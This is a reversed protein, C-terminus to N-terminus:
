WVIRCKERKIAGDVTDMCCRCCVISGARSGNLHVNYHTGLEECPGGRAPDPHHLKLSKQGLRRKMAELAAAPSPFGYQEPLQQCLPYTPFRVRCTREDDRPDTTDPSPPSVPPPPRGPGARQEQAQRLQQRLREAQAGALLGAKLAEKILM